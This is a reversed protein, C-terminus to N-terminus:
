DSPDLLQQLIVRDPSRALWRCLDRLEQGQPTSHLQEARDALALAGAFNAGRLQYGAVALRM